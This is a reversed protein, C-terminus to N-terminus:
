EDIEGELFIARKSSEENLLNSYELSKNLTYECPILCIGYKDTVIAKKGTYDTLEFPKMDENYVLSLKGTDSYKFVYNDKFDNLNKLGKAGKKKPM